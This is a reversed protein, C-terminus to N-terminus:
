AQTDKVEGAPQALSAVIRDRGQRKAEYLHRDATQVAQHVQGGRVEAVGVSQTVRFHGGGPAVFDQERLRASIKEAVQVAGQLDTEPLLLVFEEGGYRAAVDVQERTLAQLNRGIRALVEDGAQHGWLDNVRKFHDVDMMVLSLPRGSRMQRHAERTLRAMFERRNPLGTLMDTRVLTELQQRHRHLTDALFFLAGAFPFSAAAFLVRVWMAWWDALPGDGRVPTHLLPAYPMVDAAQLVEAVILTLLASMWAWRLQWLSLLARSFVMQVVLVVSMPTDKHGYALALLTMGLCAPVAAAQVLWPQADDRAQTRSAVSAVALLWAMLGAQLQLSPWLWEAEYLRQGDISFLSAVQLVFILLYAPLSTQVLVLCSTADRREVIRGELRQLWSLGEAM